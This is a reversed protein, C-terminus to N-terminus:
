RHRWLRRALRGGSGGKGQAEVGLCGSGQAGLDDDGGGIHPFHARGEGDCVAVDDAGDAINGGAGVAEESDVDVVSRVIEEECSRRM